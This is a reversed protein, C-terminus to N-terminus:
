LMNKMICVVQPSFHFYLDTFWAHDLILVYEAIVCVNDHLFQTVVNIDRDVNTTLTFVTAACCLKVPSQSSHVSPRTSGKGELM